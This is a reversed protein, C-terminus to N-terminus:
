RLTRVRKGSAAYIANCLAAAVCSTGRRASEVRAEGSAVLHVEVRPAESIRWRRFIM